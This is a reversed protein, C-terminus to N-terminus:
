VFDTDHEEGVAAGADECARSQHCEDNGRGAGRFKEVYGNVGDGACSTMRCGFM